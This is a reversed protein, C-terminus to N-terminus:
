TLSGQTLDKVVFDPWRELFADSWAIMTRFEEPKWVRGGRTVCMRSREIDVCSPSTDLLFEQMRQHCVDYAFKRNPSRVFYKRSFAGSEFDIDDFGFVGGIKDFIGERRILLDPMTEYPLHVILYSFHHKTESERGKSDTSTTTYTFDGAKLTCASGLLEVAGALTNYARQKSGRRFIEFHAYEDDHLPDPDSTYRLGLEAAVRRLDERRKKAAKHAHVALAIVASFGIVALLVPMLMFAEIPM